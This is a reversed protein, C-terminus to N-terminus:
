GGADTFQEVAAYVVEFEGSVTGVLADAVAKRLLPEFDAPCEGGVPAIPPVKVVIKVRTMLSLVAPEDKFEGASTYPPAPRPKGFSYGM